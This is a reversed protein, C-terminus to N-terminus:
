ALRPQPKQKKRLLHSLLLGAGLGAAGIGAMQHSTDWKRPDLSNFGKMYNVGQDVYPKAADLAQHGLALGKDTMSPEVAPAPAPAAAPVPAPIEAHKTLLTSLVKRADAM